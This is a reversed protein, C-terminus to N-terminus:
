GHPFCEKTQETVRLLLKQWTVNILSSNTQEHTNLLITQINTSHLLCIANWYHLFYYFSLLHKCSLSVNRGHTEFPTPPSSFNNQCGIMKSPVVYLGSAFKTHQTHTNHPTHTHQMPLSASSEFFSSRSHQLSHLAWINSLPSGTLLQGLLSCNVSLNYIQSHIKETDATSCNTNKQAHRHKIARGYGKM